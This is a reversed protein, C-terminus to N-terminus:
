VGINISSNSYSVTFQSNKKAFFFLFSSLFFTQLIECSISNLITVNYFFLGGKRRNYINKETFKQCPYSRTTENSFYKQRASALTWLEVDVFHSRIGACSCNKNLSTESFRILNYLEAVVMTYISYSLFKVTCKEVAKNLSICFNHKLKGNYRAALSTFATPGGHQAGM